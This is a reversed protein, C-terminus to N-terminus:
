EPSVKQKDKVKYDAEESGLYNELFFQFLSKWNEFVLTHGREVFVSFQIKKFCVVITSM